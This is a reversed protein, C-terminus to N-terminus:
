QALQWLLVALIPPRRRSGAAKGAGVAWGARQSFITRLTPVPRMGGGPAGWGEGASRRVRRVARAAERSAALSLGPRVSDRRRRLRVSYWFAMRSRRATSMSAAERRGASSLPWPKSLTLRPSRGGGEEVAVDGGSLLDAAEGDAAALGGEVAFGDGEGGVEGLFVLEGAEGEAGAAAEGEGVGEDLVALVLEVDEEGAVEGAGDAAEAVGALVLEEEEEVALGDVGEGEGLFEEAILDEVFFLEFDAEGDGGAGVVEGDGEEFFAGGEGVGGALGGGGAEVVAAVGAGGGGDGLEGDGSGEGGLAGALGGAAAAEEDTLGGVGGGFLGAGGGDEGGEEAAGVAAGGGGGIEVFEEGEVALAAGLGAEVGADGGGDGGDEGIGFEEEADFGIGRLATDVADGVEFEGGAEREEEPAADRVVFEEEGGGLALEALGGFEFALGAAEEGVGTRFVEGGVEGSLPEAEAVDVGDEGAAVEEAVEVVVEALGEALFGFEEEVADEAFVAGEAGEELGIVGEEVFAEGAVVIDGADVAAAEAADGERGAAVAATEEALAADERDGGVGGAGGGEEAADEDELVDEAGRGGGRGGGDRGERFGGHGGIEGHPFTEGGMAGVGGAGAAVAGDVGDAEGEFVVVGGAAPTGDFDFILGDIGGAGDGAVALELADIAEFVGEEAMRFEEGSGEGFVEKGEGKAAADFVVVGGGDAFDDGGGFLVIVTEGRNDKSHDVACGEAQATGFREGGSL